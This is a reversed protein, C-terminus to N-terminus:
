EGPGQRTIRPGIELIARTGGAGEGSPDGDELRLHGGYRNTAIRQALFLGMGSGQEKTTVHPSFLRDRVERPLGPGEDRVEIRLGGADRPTARLSVSGGDPSAEIANVVLAQLVARLEPRVARLPPLDGAIETELRPATAGEGGTLGTTSNQLAELTVDQILAAVDVDEEPVSSSSALALFSRLSGDVRRIQQRATAALRRRDAPGLDDDGLRDLSLGLANLPNRLSHALGRSVEGLESLHQGARLLRTDEELQRLRASMQNFAQVTEEMEGRASAEVRVGLDGEGLRRAAAALQRLPRTTGHAFLGAVVLGVLLLAGSGALMRNTFRRVRRELSNTPIPVQEISGGSAIVLRDASPDLERLHDAPLSPHHGLRSLERRAVELLEEKHVKSGDLKRVFRVGRQAGGKEDPAEEDCHFGAATACDPAEGSAATLDGTHTVHVRISRPTVADEEPDKKQLVKFVSEGVSVALAEVEIDLDDALSRLMWWQAGLLVALLGGFLLFLKSRLTM